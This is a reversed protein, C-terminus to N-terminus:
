EKSSFAMNSKIGLDKQNGSQQATEECILKSLEGGGTSMSSWGCGGCWRCSNPDENTNEDEKYVLRLAASAMECVDPDIIEQYGGPCTDDGENGLKYSDLYLLCSCQLKM